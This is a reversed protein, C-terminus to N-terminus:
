EGAHEREVIRTDCGVHRELELDALCRPAPVTGVAIAGDAIFGREIIEERRAQHFGEEHGLNEVRAFELAPEVGERRLAKSREGARWSNGIMGVRLLAM